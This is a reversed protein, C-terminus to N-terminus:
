DKLRRNLEAKVERATDGRWTQANSLFYAVISKGSDLGYKNEINDLSEMASLYPVAGFYMRVWDMRIVSALQDLTMNKYSEKANLM